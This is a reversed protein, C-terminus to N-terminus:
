LAVKVAKNGVKVIYIGNNASVNVTQGAAANVNNIVMGAMNYVAVNAAKEVTVSIVGNGAIVNIDNDGDAFVNQVALWNDNPKLSGVSSITRTKLYDTPDYHYTIDGKYSVSYDCFYTSQGKYGFGETTGIMIFPNYAAGNSAKNPTYWWYGEYVSKVGSEDSWPWYDNRWGGYLFTNAAPTGTTAPWQMGMMETFYVDVDGAQWEGIPNETGEASFLAGRLYRYAAGEETRAPTTPVTTSTWLTGGGSLQVNDYTYGAGCALLYFRRLPGWDTDDITEYEVDTGKVDGTNVIHMNAAEWTMAKQSWGPMFAEGSYAFDYTWIMAGSANNATGKFNLNISSTEDDFNSFTVTSGQNPGCAVGNHYAYGMSGSEFYPKNNSDPTNTNAIVLYDDGNLSTQGIYFSNAGNSSLEPVAFGKWNADFVSKYKLALPKLSDGLQVDPFLQPRNAENWMNYRPYFAVHSITKRQSTTAYDNTIAITVKAYLRAGAWSTFNDKWEGNEMWTANWVEGSSDTWTFKMEGPRSIGNEAVYQNYAQEARLMALGEASMEARVGGKDKIDTAPNAALMSGAALLAVGVAYFKKMSNTILPKYQKKREKDLRYGEKESTHYPNIFVVPAFYTFFIPVPM